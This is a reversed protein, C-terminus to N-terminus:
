LGIGILPNRESWGDDEEIYGLLAKSGDTWGGHRGIDVVDKGADRAANVFGRRMSHSRWRGPTETLEGLLEVVDSAADTTMRGQPDGIPRGQRTMPPAIRGGSGARVFLPGDTRGAEALAAILARVARVPCTDPNSGYMVAVDQWQKKKVRYVRVTIGRDEPHETVSSIDLLVLDSARGAVAVGLLLLAADRKGKFTTRDLEALFRRLVAPKAPSAKKPRAAPDGATSLKARYGALVKRAGKGDPPLQGAAHHATNISALAREISSPGYPKGTRPRPTKTLHVAYETITEPSAPLPRRGFGAAWDTFRRWDGEYAKATNDPVADALAQRAEPSLRREPDSQSLEQATTVATSLAVEPM